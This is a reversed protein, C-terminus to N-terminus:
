NVDKLMAGTCNGLKTIMGQGVKSEMLDWLLTGIMEGLKTEM